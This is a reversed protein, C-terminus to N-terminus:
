EPNLPVVQILLFKPLDPRVQEQTASSLPKKQTPLYVLCVAIFASQIAAFSWFM